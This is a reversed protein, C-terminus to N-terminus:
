RRNTKDFTYMDTFCDIKKADIEHRIEQWMNVCSFFDRTPILSVSCHWLKQVVLIVFIIDGHVALSALSTSTKSLTFIKIDLLTRNSANTRVRDM